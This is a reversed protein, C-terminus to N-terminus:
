PAPAISQSFRFLNTPDYQKKVAQLRAYRESGFASPVRELEDSELYNVYARGTAFPAMAAGLERIMTGHREAAATGEYGVGFLLCYDADRGSFASDAPSVRRIAGGFHELIIFLEPVTHKVYLDVLADLTADDLWRLFQTRYYYNRGPPAVFDVRTQQEEYTVERVDDATPLGFTRLPRLVQEGRAIDGVYCAWISILPGSTPDNLLYAFTTVEDPVTLNWDRLFGLLERARKRPNDGLVWTVNGALVTRVPYVRYEISTVVGFNAGAGRMAWFLDPHSHEDVTLLEGAATVMDLSTINDCALGHCRMFLNLGGGLGYGSVTVSSDMPGGAAFGLAQLEPTFERWRVGAQARATRRGPEVRVGKMQTLDISIEGDMLCRGALDHRGSRVAAPLGNERAFRVIEMVDAVGTCRAILSPRKDYRGNWLRRADDYGNEEPLFLEGRFRRRLTRSVAQSLSSAPARLSPDPAHPM